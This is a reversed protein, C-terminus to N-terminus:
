TWRSLNSVQLRVEHLSFFWFDFSFGRCVRVPLVAFVSPALESFLVLLVFLLLFFVSFVVVVVVVIFFFFFFFFFFFLFYAFSSLNSCFSKRTPTARHADRRGRRSHPQGRVEHEPVEAGELKTRDRRHMLSRECASTLERVCPGPFGTRALSVSAFWLFIPLPFSLFVSVSRRPLIVRAIIRRTRPRGREVEM